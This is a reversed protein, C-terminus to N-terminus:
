ESGFFDITETTPASEENIEDLWEQAEEETLGHIKMLARKRSLLRNNVLLVARNVEATHDEAISDDFQITVDFDDTGSFLDYLRAVDVISHVLEKLATEIIVEHSQKTKFTKSQESIVETATKMSQGDFTFTGSSFGTQMAFLNLLANIASIHEEVRLEVKVDHIKTEDMDAPYGQYVEDSSDFYRQPRGKEDYVTRIM